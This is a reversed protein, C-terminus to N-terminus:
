CSFLSVCLEKCIFDIINKKRQIYNFSLSMCLLVCLYANSDICLPFNQQYKPTEFELNYDLNWICPPFKHKIMFEWSEFWIVRLYEISCWNKIEFQIVNYILKIMKNTASQLCKQTSNLLDAKLYLHSVLSEPDHSMIWSLEFNVVFTQRLLKILKTYDEQIWFWLFCFTQFYDLNILWM